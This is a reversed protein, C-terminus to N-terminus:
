DIEQARCFAIKGETKLDRLQTAKLFPETPYDFLCNTEALDFHTCDECATAYNLKTYQELSVYDKIIGTNPEM